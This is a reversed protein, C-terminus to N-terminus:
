SLDGAGNRVAWCFGNAWSQANQRFVLLRRLRKGAAASRWAGGCIGATVLFVEGNALVVGLGNTPSRMERAVWSFFLPVLAFLVGFILWREFRDNTSPRDLIPRPSPHAIM